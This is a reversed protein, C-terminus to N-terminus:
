MIWLNGLSGLKTMLKPGKLFKHLQEWSSLVVHKYLQKWTKKETFRFIMEGLSVLFGCEM